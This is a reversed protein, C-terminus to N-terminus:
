SVKITYTKKKGGASVTLKATGKKVGTVYGYKSVKLVKTNSSKFSAVAGTATSPSYKAYIAQKAGVKLTKPVGSASVKTVKVAKKVAKVTVTSKVTKGDKGQTVATATITVKGTKLAKLKGSASVSVIKPNSSKWTVKAKTASWTGTNPFAYASLTATKGKALNLSKQPLKVTQTYPADDDDDPDPPTPPNQIVGRHTGCPDTIIGSDEAEVTTAGNGSGVICKTANVNGGTYAVIGFFDNNDVQLQDFSATAETVSVGSGGNTSATVDKTATLNAFNTMVIGGGANGTITTIDNLTVNGAVYLGVGVSNAITLTGDFGAGPSEVRVGEAKNGTFSAAGSVQVTGFGRRLMGQQGNTNATVTALQIVGMGDFKIGAGTNGNATVAGTATLASTDTFAMGDGGNSSASIGAANVTAPNSISVNSVALGTGTNSDFAPDVGSSAALTLVPKRAIASQRFDLGNGGNHAAGGGTVTAHIDALYGGNGGNSDLHTDTLTLAVHTSANGIVQLGDARAGTVTTNNLDLHYAGDDANAYLANNAQSAGDLNINCIAVNDANVSLLPPNAATNFSADASIRQVGGVGRVLVNPQSIVLPATATFGAALELIVPDTDTGGAQSSNFTSASTVTIAPLASTAGCAPADATAMPAAFALETAVLTLTALLAPISQKSM